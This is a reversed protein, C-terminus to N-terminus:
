RRKGGDVLPSAKGAPKGAWRLLRARWIGTLVLVIGVLSSIVILSPGITPDYFAIGFAALLIFVAGHVLCTIQILDSQFWYALLSAIKEVGGARGPRSGWFTGAALISLGFALFPYAVWQNGADPIGSRLFLSLVALAIGFVLYLGFMAQIERIPPRVVGRLIAAPASLERVGGSETLEADHDPIDRSWGPPISRSFRKRPTKRWRIYIGYLIVTLLLGLATLVIPSNM